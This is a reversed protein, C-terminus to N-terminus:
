EASSSSTTANQRKAAATLGQGSRNRIVTADASNIVGDANVDSRFNTSDTVQGSRNRSQTADASNVADDANSDGILVDMAATVSSFTTGSTDQVGSLSVAFHQQNTVGSVDVTIQNPEPGVRPSTASSTGNGITGTGQSIAANGSNAVPRDFTFVLQYSNNAGPNRCEIGHPGVLPLPIDFTGATGHVKRSVIGPVPLTATTAAEANVFGYGDLPSYGHGVRNTLRGSFPYNNGGDSVTGSFTMGPLINPSDAYEPILVGHGLIDASYTNPQGYLPNSITMGQPSTADQQQQRGVNFRFVKGSTFNNNPFALNLTWYFASTSPPPAPNSVSHTADSPTLDSQGYSFTNTNFVMGPTYKYDAPTLFDAPMFGNFQGGTPNGGTQATGEPNFHLDKLVGPGNYTVRWSNPDGSGTNVNSSNDSVVQITVTGGNPTTATGTASYPDLDHPFTNLQMLTKVQQPTLSGPGGHAQLILAAIAASHPSAASTGYFNPFNQDPDWPADQAPGLPFFTNNAGDAAAIDPKLRVQPTALRNNNTDFYITVPGPSTFDEPLNPRFMSYAAVSNAGAAASHGFTVPTLYNNYEAPGVGSIGNGFFVYKLQDAATPPTATNSRSIVMQVQSYGNASFNPAWEEIPRNNAINNSAVQEIFKGTMDFFLLNFDQTIRAVGTATNIVLSFHGQTPVPVGGVSTSYPHVRVTYQGSVPAFFIVTEDVGTDQDLVTHGNPDIVAIIADFNESPNQPTAMETIVYEQGATFSVQYDVAAGGTSNGTVPGFVVPGLSPTSTDYPDNWQFVAAQADSATNITQAVDLGNPSFNHFGGAYLSPDVGTLDINTGALASNTAATVGTGNAVPRFTSAYGDTGWNNAASSCYTRGANVADIVGQAVIGDQFMPEDLYSVDDCVVDGKFGQQVSDAYTFGPLGALARINNAFGVEGVDATAFAIRAKPAMDAVIQCMARGENTAGPTPNYDQLVVVPQPNTVNAVGPLDQSAVDMEATTYGGEESPQSNYSDSMVGISMGTGDFNHTAAANYITSVRNVRHQNIGQSTVAGISHIPKLQLLVSRVGHMKAISPADDLTIYGELVGHGAYKADVNRIDTAPFSTQLAARLEALPVQGDPMIDVLYKGSPSDVIAMKAYMAAQKAVSAKYNTEYDIAASPASQGSAVQAQAPPNIAGAELLKNEVVKDLGNGLNQPVPNALASYTIAFSTTFALLRLRNTARISLSSLNM